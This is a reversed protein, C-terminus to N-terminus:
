QGPAAALPTGLSVLSFRSSGTWHLAFNFQAAGRCCIDVAKVVSARKIVQLHMVITADIKASFETLALAFTIFPFPMNKAPPKLPAKQVM